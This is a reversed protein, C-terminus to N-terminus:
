KGLREAMYEALTIATAPAWAVDACNPLQACVVPNQRNDTLNVGVCGDCQPIPGGAPRLLPVVPIVQGFLYVVQPYDNLTMTRVTRRGDKHYVYETRPWDSVDIDPDFEVKAM